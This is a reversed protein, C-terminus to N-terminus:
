KMKDIQKVANAFQISDGNNIQRYTGDVPLQLRKDKKKFISWM